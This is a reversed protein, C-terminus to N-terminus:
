YLSHFPEEAVGNMTSHSFFALRTNKKVLNIKKQEFTLMEGTFVNKMTVYAVDCITDLRIFQLNNYKETGYALEYFGNDVSIKM